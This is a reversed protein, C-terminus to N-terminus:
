QKRKLSGLVASKPSPTGVAVRTLAWISLPVGVHVRPLSPTAYTIHQYIYSLTIGLYTM